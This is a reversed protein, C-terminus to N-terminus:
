YSKNELISSIMKYKKDFNLKFYMEADNSLKGEEYAWSLLYEKLYNSINFSSPIVDNLGIGKEKSFSIVSKAALMLPYEIWESYGEIRGIFESKYIVERIFENSILENNFFLRMFVGAKSGIKREILELDLVDKVLFVSTYSIFYKAYERQSNKQSLSFDMDLSFSLLQFFVDHNRWLLEM